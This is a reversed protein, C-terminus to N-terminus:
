EGGGTLAKCSQIVSLIVQVLAGLEELDVDRTITGEATTVKLYPVNDSPLGVETYGRVGEVQILWSRHVQETVTVKPM